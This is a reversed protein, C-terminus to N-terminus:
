VYTSSMVLHAAITYRHFSHNGNGSSFSFGLCHHIYSEEKRKKQKVLDSGCTPSDSLCSADQLNPCPSFNVFALCTELAVSSFGYHMYLFGVNVFMYIYNLDKGWSAFVCYSLSM